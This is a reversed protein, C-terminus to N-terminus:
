LTQLHAASPLSSIYPLCSPLQESRIWAYSKIINSFCYKYGFHLVKGNSFKGNRVKLSFKCLFCRTSKFNWLSIRILRNPQYNIDVTISWNTSNPLIIHRLKKVFIYTKSWSITQKINTKIKQSEKVNSATRM